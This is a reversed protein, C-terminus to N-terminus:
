GSYTLMDQKEQLAAKNFRAEGQSPGHRDALSSKSLATSIDLDIEVAESERSALCGQQVKNVEKRSLGQRRLV